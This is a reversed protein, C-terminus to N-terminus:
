QTLELYGQLEFVKKRIEQFDVVSVLEDRNVNSETGMKSVLYAVDENASLAEQAIKVKDEFGSIKGLLDWSKQNDKEMKDINFQAVNVLDSYTEQNIDPGITELEELSQKWQTVELSTSDRHQIALERVKAISELTEEALVFKRSKTTETSM